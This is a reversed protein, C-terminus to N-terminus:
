EGETAAELMAKLRLSLAAIDPNEKALEAEILTAEQIAARVAKRASDAKLGNQITQGTMVSYDMTDETDGQGSPKGLPLPVGFAATAIGAAAVLTNSVTRLIRARAAIVKTPDVSVRKWQGDLRDLVLVYHADGDGAAYASSPLQRWRSPHNIIYNIFPDSLDQYVHYRKEFWGEATLANEADKRASGVVVSMAEAYDSATSESLTEQLEKLATPTTTKPLVSKLGIAVNKVRVGFKLGATKEIGELKKALESSDVEIGDDEMTRLALDLLMGILSRERALIEPSADAQNRVDNLRDTVLKLHEDVQTAANQAKGQLEEQNLNDKNQANAKVLSNAFAHTYVIADRLSTLQQKARELRALEVTARSEDSLTPHIKNYEEEAEEDLSYREVQVEVMSRCGGFLLLAAFLMGLNVFLRM